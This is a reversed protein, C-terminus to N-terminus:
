WEPCFTPKPSPFTPLKGSFYLSGSNRPNLERQSEYRKKKHWARSAIFMENEEPISNNAAIEKSNLLNIGSKFSFVDTVRFILIIVPVVAHYKFPIPPLLKLVCVCVSVCVCFFLVVVVFFCEQEKSGCFFRTSGCFLKNKCVIIGKFLKISKLFCRCM